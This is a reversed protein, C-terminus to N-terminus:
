KNDDIHVVDKYEGTRKIKVSLMYLFYKISKSLVMEVSLSGGQTWSRYIQHEKMYTRQTPGVERVQCEEVQCSSEIGKCSVHSPVVGFLKDPTTNIMNMTIHFQVPNVQPKPEQSLQKQIPRTKINVNPGTNQLKGPVDGDRRIMKKAPIGSSSVSNDNPTAGKPGMSHALMDKQDKSDQSPRKQIPRTKTNMNPGTNQLKGPVDQRIMKKAPIGSSSVSIDNPTAGKPGMSHALMDKQDKSDKRLDRQILIRIENENLDRLIKMITGPGCRETFCRFISEVVYEVSKANLSGMKIGEAKGPPKRSCLAKKFNKWRLETLGKLHKACITQKNM